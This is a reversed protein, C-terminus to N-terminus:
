VGMEGEKGRGVWCPALEVKGGREVGADGGQTWISGDRVQM